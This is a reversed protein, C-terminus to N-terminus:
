SPKWHGCFMEHISLTRRLIIQQINHIQRHSSNCRFMLLKFRLIKGITKQNLGITWDDLRRNMFHVRGEKFSFKSIMGDGDILNKRLGNREFLAPGNRFLTGELDRPIEGIIESDSIWQSVEEDVNKVFKRIDDILLKHRNKINQEISIGMTADRVSGAPNTQYEAKTITTIRKCRFQQNDIVRQYSCFYKQSIMSAQSSM